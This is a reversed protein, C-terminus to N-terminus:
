AAPHRLAIEEAVALDEPANANFFPDLPLNPWEAEAVPYRATFLDIKRVDEDTLARRLDHRLSVDWLAITPHAWGGSRAVAIRAQRLQMVALLRPALDAPLFPCDAAVSLVHGAKTMEAAYDLGALIGALPGPFDEIEDALVPLEYDAFREPDGNANIVLREVQPGIRRLVRELIPKGGVVRMPKDGGGMRTARGGALIVGLIM